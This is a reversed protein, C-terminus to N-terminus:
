DDCKSLQLVAWRLFEARNMGRSKLLADIESAETPPIKTGWTVLDNKHAERYRKDAEKQAESRAM